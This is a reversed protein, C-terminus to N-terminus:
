IAEKLPNVSFAEVPRFYRAVTETSRHGTRNMIALISAGGEAAATVMGSRLSHAGYLEPDLGIAEAAAKVISAISRDTLAAGERLEGRQNGPFWLPGPEKGRQAIYAKLAAVPCSRPKGHHIALVRGHSEQDNKARRIVILVGRRTFSLDALRLAALEARRFGGAFGILLLARNRIGAATKPQIRVMARLEAATIPKKGAQPKTNRRRAGRLTDIVEQNLPHQEGAALHMARIAAARREVTAVSFRGLEDAIFLQLTDPRAPLPKRGARECWATFIRWDSEYARTTNEARTSARLEIVAARLKAMDIEDEM